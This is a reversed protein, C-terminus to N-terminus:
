SASFCRVISVGAMHWTVFEYVGEKRGGVVIDDLLAQKPHLYAGGGSTGNMGTALGDAEETQLALFTTLM